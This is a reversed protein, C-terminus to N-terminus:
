KRMFPNKKAAEEAPSSDGGGGNPSEGLEKLFEDYSPPKIFLNL